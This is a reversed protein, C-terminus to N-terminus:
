TLTGGFPLALYFIAASPSFVRKSLMTRSVAARDVTDEMPEMFALSLLLSILSTLVTLGFFLRYDALYHRLYEALLPATALSGMSAIGLIGVSEGKRSPPAINISLTNFSLLFSGWGVGQAARFLYLAVLSPFFLLGLGAAAYLASGLILLAKLGGQSAKRGLLPRFVISCAYYLGALLGVFFKSGGLEVTYLPLVPILFDTSFFSFYVIAFLLFFNVTFLARQQPRLPNM